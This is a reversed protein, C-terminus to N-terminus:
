LVFPWNREDILVSRNFIIIVLRFVRKIFSFADSACFFYTTERVGLFSVVSAVVTVPRGPAECRLRGIEKM